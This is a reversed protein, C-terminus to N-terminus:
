AVCLLFSCVQLITNAPQGTVERMTDLLERIAHEVIGFQLLIRNFSPFGDNRKEVRSTTKWISVAAYFRPRCQGYWTWKHTKITCVVHATLQRM